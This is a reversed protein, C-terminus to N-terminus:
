ECPRLSINHILIVYVHWIQMLSCHAQERSPSVFHPCLIARHVGCFHCYDTIVSLWFSSTPFINNSGHSQNQVDSWVVKNTYVFLTWRIRHRLSKIHLVISRLLSNLMERGASWWWGWAIILAHNLQQIELVSCYYSVNISKTWIWCFLSTM